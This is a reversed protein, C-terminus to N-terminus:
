WLSTETVKKSIKNASLVLIVAIVSNFLGVATAFDYRGDLLGSRYVYTSIVDATQYTAPQYLLIIAEYGVVLMNGIKMILMVVITPMISPITINKIQQWKNAGDINAAEYMAQDIGAIAAIFVISGFGTSKWLDMGTYIGRFYEPKTLFYIKDMGIKELLVNILGNGPSLLTTVLGAVVVISVFHPLYTLTQVSKKFKSNKVENLLIALIIPAPFCILLNYINLIITNKFVRGFYESGIFERFYELGVWPSAEIGQFLSFDKFAIQLGYMPKYKFLLFWIIFPILIMYLYKDRKIDRVLIKTYTKMKVKFNPESISQQILNNNSITKQMM